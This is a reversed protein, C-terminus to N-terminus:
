TVREINKEVVLASESSVKDAKSEKVVGMGIEWYGSEAM